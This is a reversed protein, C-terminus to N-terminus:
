AVDEVQELAIMRDREDLVVAVADIRLAEAHPRDPHEWLWEAALARMRRRKSVTLGVFPDLGGARRAKVEVFVITRADRVILDIEGTRTRHNRAILVFGLREYHELALQEGLRGLSQNAPTHTM